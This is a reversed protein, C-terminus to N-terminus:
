GFILAYAKQSDENLGIEQKVYDTMVREWLFKQDRSLEGDYGTRTLRTLPSVQAKM